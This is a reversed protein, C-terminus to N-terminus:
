SLFCLEEHLVQGMGEAVGGSQPDGSLGSLWHPRSPGEVFPKLLIGGVGCPGLGQLRGIEWQRLSPLAALLPATPLSHSM